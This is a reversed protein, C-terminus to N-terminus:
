RRSGHTGPWDAHTGDGTAGRYEVGHNSTIPEALGDNAALGRGDRVLRAREFHERRYSIFANPDDVM